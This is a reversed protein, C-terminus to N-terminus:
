PQVSLRPRKSMQMQWAQENEQNKKAEAQFVAAIADDLATRKKDAYFRNIAQLMREEAIRHLECVMRLLLHVGAQEQIIPGVVPYEAGAIKNPSCQQKLEPSVILHLLPVLKDVDGYLM